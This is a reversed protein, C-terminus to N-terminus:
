KKLMWKLIASGHVGLGKVAMKGEPERVSVWIGDREKGM